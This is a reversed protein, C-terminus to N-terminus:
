AILGGVVEDDETCVQSGEADRVALQALDGSLRLLLARERDPLAEFAGTLDLLRRPFPERPHDALGDFFWEPPTQLAAAIEALRGAMIRSRGVEYKFLQQYAIGLKAALEQLSLGAAIRRERVRASVHRDMRDIREAL